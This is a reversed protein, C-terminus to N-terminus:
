YRDSFKKMTQYFEAEPVWVSRIIVLGPGNCAMLPQFSHYGEVLRSEVSVDEQCWRNPDYGVADFAGSFPFVKYEDWGRGLSDWKQYNLDAIRQGRHCLWWGYLCGAATNRYARIWSQRVYWPWGKTKKRFTFVPLKKDPM